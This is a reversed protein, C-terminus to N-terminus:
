GQCRVFLCFSLRRASIPWDIEGRGEHKKIKWREWGSPGNDEELRGSYFNRGQTEGVIMRRWWAGDHRILSNFILALSSTDFFLTFSESIYKDSFFIVRLLKWSTITSSLTKCFEFTIFYTIRLIRLLKFLLFYIYSFLIESIFINRQKNQFFREGGSYYRRGKMQVVVIKLKRREDQKKENSFM